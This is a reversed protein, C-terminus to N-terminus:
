DALMKHQEPTWAPSCIMAVRCHAKFYYPEKKDLLIVDGKKFNVKQMKSFLTGKGSLCYILEKCEENVCYGSEPYRGRITSTSFDIDNDNLDFIDAVCNDSNKYKYTESQKIQKM